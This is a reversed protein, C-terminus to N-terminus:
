EVHHVGPKGNATPPGEYFTWPRGASTQELSREFVRGDRWRALVEREIAPLNVAEPLEPFPLKAVPQDDPRPMAPLREGPPARRSDRDAGHLPDPYGIGAEPGPRASRRGGGDHNRACRVQWLIPRRTQPLGRYGSIREHSGVVFIM